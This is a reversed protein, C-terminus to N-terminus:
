KSPMIKVQGTNQNIVMDLNGKRLDQIAEKSLMLIEYLAEHDEVGFQKGVATSGGDLKAESLVSDDLISFKQTHAEKAMNISQIQRNINALADELFDDFCTNEDWKLVISSGPKIREEGRQVCLLYNEYLDQFFESKNFVAQERNMKDVITEGPSDQEESTNDVTGEQHTNDKVSDEVSSDKRIGNGDSDLVGMHEPLATDVKIEKAM